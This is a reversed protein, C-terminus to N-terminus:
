GKMALWMEGLSRAQNCLLSRFMVVGKLSSVPQVWGPSCLDFNTPVLTPKKLLPLHDIDQPWWQFCAFSKFISFDNFDSVLHYIISNSESCTVLCSPSVHSTPFVSCYTVWLVVNNEPWAMVLVHCEWLDLQLFYSMRFIGHPLQLIEQPPGM